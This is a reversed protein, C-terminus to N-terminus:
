AWYTSKDILCIDVCVFRPGLSSTPLVPAQELDVDASAAALEECIISDTVRNALPEFNYPKIYRFIDFGEDSDSM